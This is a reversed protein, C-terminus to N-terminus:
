GAHDSTTRRHPVHRAEEPGTDRRPYLPSAVREVGTRRYHVAVDSLHTAPAGTRVGARRTAYGVGPEQERHISAVGAYVDRRRGCGMGVAPVRLVRPFRGVGM